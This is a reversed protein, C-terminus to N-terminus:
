QLHWVVAKEGMVRGEEIPTLKLLGDDKPEYLFIATFAGHPPDRYIATMANGLRSPWLRYNGSIASTEVVYAGDKGLRMIQKKGNIEASWTGAIDNEFIRHSRFYVLEAEDTMIIMAKGENALFCGVKHGIMQPTDPPQFQYSLLGFTVAFAGTFEQHDMWSKLHVKDPESFEMADFVPPAPLQGEMHFYKKFYVFTWKGMIEDAESVPYEEKPDSGPPNGPAGIEQVPRCSVFLLISVGM